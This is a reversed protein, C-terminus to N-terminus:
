TSNKKSEKRKKILKKTRQYEEESEEWAKKFEPDRLLEQIHRKLDSM